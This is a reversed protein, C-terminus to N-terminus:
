SFWECAVAQVMTKKKSYRTGLLPVAHGPAINIRKPALSFMGILFITMNTEIVLMRKLIQVFRNLVVVLFPSNFRPLSVIGVARSGGVHSRTFFPM